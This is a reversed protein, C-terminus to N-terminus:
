TPRSSSATSCWTWRRRLRASSSRRAWAPCGELLCHGGALFATLLEEVVAQQGIIVKGIEARLKPIKELLRAVEEEDANAPPTATTTTM